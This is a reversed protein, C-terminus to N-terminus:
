RTGGDSGTRYHLGVAGSHFVRTGMLELTIPAKIDKFLPIGGGLVVPNINIRYEDILGRQALTHVISPSGFIMMDKGPLHKLRAVEEAINEKVLRTNHWTVSELTRSFVVKHAHEVWHAHERDEPASAPNAPVTPWYSEMMHYTIRGYLATDVTRLLDAVYTYTEEDVRAWELEGNPGAAFGDLSLHMLSIVKRTPARTTDNTGTTQETQSSNM